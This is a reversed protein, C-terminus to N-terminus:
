QRATSAFTQKQCPKPFGPHPPPPAPSTQSSSAWIGLQARWNRAFARSAAASWKPCVTSCTPATAAM